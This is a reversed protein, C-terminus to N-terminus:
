EKTGNRFYFGVWNYYDVHNELLKCIAYLREDVTKKTNFVISEIQPKLTEILMVKFTKAFTNLFRRFIQKTQMIKVKYFITNEQFFEKYFIPQDDFKYGCKQRYIYSQGHKVFEIQLK